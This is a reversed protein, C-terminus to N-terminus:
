LSTAAVMISTAKVCGKGYAPWRCQVSSTKIGTNQGLKAITVCCSPFSMERQMGTLHAEVDIMAIAALTQWLLLPAAYPSCLLDVTEVKM